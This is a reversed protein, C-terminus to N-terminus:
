KEGSLAKSREARYETPSLNFYNRFAKSFYNKDKFGLMESIEQIKLAPDDLLAKAKEMRVKQVYEHIGFGFQQKFLKMLYERSLYYKETFMSIKIDEYYHSDIYAKIDGINFPKTASAAESVASCYDDAIRNLLAAYSDFGAYDSPVVPESSGQAGALPLDIRAVGLELALDNLMIVFERLMRDAEELTFKGSVSRQRLVDGVIHKVQRYNGGEMSSRIAPIFGTLSYPKSEKAASESEEPMEAPTAVTGSRLRLLDLGAVAARASDYSDALSMVGKGVTGFGAVSEIAFLELLASLAKGTEHFAHFAMEEKGGSEARLVAIMEGERKPHAFSFSRLGPGEMENLVNAAAYYLLEKDRKFRSAAVKEANLMRLVAVAYYGDERDAGILPLLTENPQKKFSREIISWYIKEKLRPLSLNLTIRNHISESERKRREELVGFAKNLAQNLDQRNIPKLLYDVVKSRIAQRTYEFDNFGSIVIAPMDPYNEQLKQLFEMGNMEPMKMDVMVLDIHHEKLLALGQLGNNAELIRDVRLNKWDGLLRIAERLPEEDDIILVNYM